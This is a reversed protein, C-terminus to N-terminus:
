RPLASRGGLVIGMPSHGAAGRPANVDGFHNSQLRKEVAAQRRRARRPRRSHEVPWRHPQWDPGGGGGAAAHAGCLGACDDRAPLTRRSRPRARRRRPGAVKYSELNANIMRGTARDLVREEYLAYSVGMLLGGQLQSGLLLPNIPRGCDQVAVVRELRIIGTEVDVAVEAFQVGGLDQQALAAEGMTRRFGGYDEARTETVSLREGEILAAAEAFSLSRLPASRTELRGDRAVLDDDSAKLALAAKAKLVNLIKWASVRAPPTIAATARSGYSPPGAPFDADGIRV